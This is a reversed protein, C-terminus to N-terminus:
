HLVAFCQKAIEIEENTPIVLIKVRSNQSQIETLSKPRFNNKLEDLEVGLYTLNNCTMKRLIISNDGIGARFILANLGNMIATYESIYKQIRYANMELALSCKKNGNEAQNQLDRLDSFGTLGLMGSEKQLITNVADLSYQLNNVLYFVLSRDIDGSRTGMILGNVPSFGLTHDISKGNEIATMSCGNGLHISIIKSSDIQLHDIAKKSVYKHSTGHFGHYVSINNSLPM